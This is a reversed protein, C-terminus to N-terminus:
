IQCILLKFNVDDSTQVPRQTEQPEMFRITFRHKGGSIEAFFPSECPLFVRLLQASQYDSLNKQYLGAPATTEIPAASFRIFQLLLDIAQRIYVINETWSTIQSRREQVPKNLWYHYAPLDFDCTGGPISNRQNLAKLLDTQTVKQDFRGSMASLKLDLHDLQDISQTLKERDVNPSQSFIALSKRHREIEKIIETKMDSRSLITFIDLICSLETRNHWQNDDQAFHSMQAFLGELRLFTRIRENLPLEYTISNTM